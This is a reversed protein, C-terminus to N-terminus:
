HSVGVREHFVEVRCSDLGCVGTDIEPVRRQLRLLNISSDGGINLRLIRQRQHEGCTEGGGLFRRDLNGGVKGVITVDAVVCESKEIKDFITRVLDPRGTTRSHTSRSPAGRVADQIDRAQKLKEIADSLIVLVM